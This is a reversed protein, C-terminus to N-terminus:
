RMRCTRNMWCFHHGPNKRSTGQSDDSVPVVALGDRTAKPSSFKLTKLREESIQVLNAEMAMDLAVASDVEGPDQHGRRKIIQLGTLAQRDRSLSLASLPFSRM